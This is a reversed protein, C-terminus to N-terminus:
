MEFMLKAIIGWEYTDGMLGVPVSFGLDTTESMHVKAGPTLYWSMRDETEGIRSENEFEAYTECILDYERTPSYVLALGCSWVDEDAEVAQGLSNLQGFERTNDLHGYAVNGHWFFDDVAKSAALGAKWGYADKGIGADKDSTPLVATLTAALSPLWNNHDQDMLRLSLGATVDGFDYRNLQSPAGGAFTGQTKIHGYPVNLNAQIGESLGYALKLNAKWFDDTDTTSLNSGVYEATRRNQMYGADVSTQLQGPAQLYADDLMFLFEQTWRDSDEQANVSTTLLVLALISVVLSKYQSM